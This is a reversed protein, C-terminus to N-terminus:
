SPCPYFRYSQLLTLMSNLMLIVFHGGSKPSSRFFLLRASPIMTFTDSFRSRATSFRMPNLSPCADQM